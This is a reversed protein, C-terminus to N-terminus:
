HLFCWAIKELPCQGCINTLHLFLFYCALYSFNFGSYLVNVISKIFQSGVYFRIEPDYYHEPKVVRLYYHASDSYIIANKMVYYVMATILLHYLYAALYLSKEKIEYLNVIKLVMFLSIIFCLFITIVDPLGNIHASETLVRFIKYKGEM